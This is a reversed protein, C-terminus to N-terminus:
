WNAIELIRSFSEDTVRLVSQIPGRVIRNQLMVSYPIPQALHGILRFLIIKTIRQAMTEIEERSYVTRRSVLAAIASANSLAEFRDVVGITTLQKLDHTRYFLVIDGARIQRTPSHCLYALKMANGVHAQHLELQTPSDPLFDPFLIQHYRPQIPVIFKGIEIDMRFHPFYQRVYRSPEINVPPAIRPHQKVYVTDGKYTGREDFGFDELLAILHLHRVKDAHIFINECVNLSAYRFAARLFLEGIKRGRVQDAVKFTCLKLANGLLIERADNIREDEQIAYTCIASPAITETERYIWARRGERAKARFWGDFGSYGDRLSDFFPDSLMPTLAHLPVDRINPLHTQGPEHLRRLWEEASQVFYVRDQLGRARAKTHLGQDETVLAHVADNEVSFLIENDCADNVSTAPGNWPCASEVELRSYQELRTLTRGRRELNGDRRIDEVSAPHVMLQHGGVGVLRVFNTLSPQLAVM